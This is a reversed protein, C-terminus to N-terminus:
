VFKAYLIEDVLQGDIVRQANRTAELTMGAREMVRIMGANSSVAGGTIKRIKRSQSLHDMITSWADFGFGQGWLNREGILIGIDATGHHKEIYVTMTGISKDTEINDIALFLNSTNDFSALYSLASQRSHLQESQRSYRMTSQDNLWALYENSIDKELFMRIHTKRGIVPMTLIPMNPM